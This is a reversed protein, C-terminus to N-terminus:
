SDSTGGVEQTITASRSRNALAQRLIERLLDSATRDEARAAAILADFLRRPVRVTLRRELNKQM